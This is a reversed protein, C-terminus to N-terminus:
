LAMAALWTAAPVVDVGNKNRHGRALNQVLQVKRVGPFHKEFIAFSPSVTDDSTKVEIMVHPKRDKLILFDIEKEQKNRVFNLEFKEGRVDQRYHIEKLLALAVLNEFRAAPDEVRTYDFFYAKPAKRISSAMSRSTYPHVRFVVYSNELIDVWRKVTKDDTFLDERLSNYSLLSGVREALLLVLFELSKVDRIRETEFIDQRLIVDLHSQQWKGHFSPDSSLLPEPFGSLALLRTLLAHPVGDATGSILKRLAPTNGIEAALEKVDFPYLRQSFFRGALSDGAKRFLQLKASGTVLFEQRQDDDDAIEKLWLKWRKMKHLEDFIVLRRDRHWDRSIIRKRHAAIDFNLYDFDEPYLCKSVFTKGSQRPGSLLVMKRELDTRLPGALYREM